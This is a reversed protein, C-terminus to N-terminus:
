KFYSEKKLYESVKDSHINVLKKCEAVLDSIETKKRNISKEM